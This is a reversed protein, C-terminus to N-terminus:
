RTVQLTAPAAIHTVRKLFSQHELEMTENQM